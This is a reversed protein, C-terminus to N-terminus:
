SKSKLTQAKPNTICSDNGNDHFIGYRYHNYLM